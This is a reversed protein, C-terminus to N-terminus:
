NREEMLADWHDLFKEFVKRHSKDRVLLMPIEPSWATYNGNGHRRTYIPPFEDRCEECNPNDCM